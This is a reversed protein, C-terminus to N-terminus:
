GGNSGNQHLPVFAGREDVRFKAEPPWGPLDLPIEADEPDPVDAPEDLYDAVARLLQALEPGVAQLFREM